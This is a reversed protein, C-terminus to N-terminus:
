YNVTFKSVVVDWQDCLPNLYADDSGSIYCAVCLMFWLRKSTWVYSIDIIVM